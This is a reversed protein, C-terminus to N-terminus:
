LNFLEEQEAISFLYKIDPVHNSIVMDSLEEDSIERLFEEISLKTDKM